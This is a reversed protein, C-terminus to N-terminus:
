FGNHRFTGVILPWIKDLWKSYIPEIYKQRMTDIFVCVIYVVVTKIIIVIPFWWENLYFENPFFTKWIVVRILDNDHILYVGLTATALCNITRNYFKPITVFYMFMAITIFTSFIKVFGWVGRIFIDKKLIIGILDLSIITLGLGILSWWLYTCWKKSHSFEERCYLYQRCYAGVSYMFGFYVIPAEKIFTTFRFTPLLIDTLFLIVLLKKFQKEDLSILLKNIFPIFLSFIIYCSVFWNHGFWLPIVSHVVDKISLPFFNSGYLVAGIVWSYFFMTCTLLAIKKYNVQRGFMYYGTIVVFIGNAMHGGWGVLQTLVIQWSINTSIGDYYRVIGHVCFHHVIIILMAVIRLLEVNSERKKNQRDTLITDSM